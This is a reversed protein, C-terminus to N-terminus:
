KAANLETKTENTQSCTEDLAVKLVYLESKLAAVQQNNVFRNSLKKQCMFNKDELIIEPNAPCCSCSVLTKPCETKM